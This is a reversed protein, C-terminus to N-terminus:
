WPPTAAAIAVAVNADSANRFAHPLTSGFRASDGPGLRHIEEGILLEIDGHIVYVFEEGEHTIPDDAYGGGPEFTILTPQIAHHRGSGLLRYNTGKGRRATPHSIQESRRLIEVTPETTTDGGYDEALLDTVRIGFYEAVVQLRSLSVGANGNELESLSSPSIQLLRAQERVGVGAHERLQKIREGVLRALDDAM